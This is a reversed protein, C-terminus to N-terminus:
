SAPSPWKQTLVSISCPNIPAYLMASPSILKAWMTLPYLQNKKKFLNSEHMLFSLPFSKHIYLYFMLIVPWHNHLLFLVTPQSPDYTVKLSSYVSQRGSVADHRLCLTELSGRRSSAALIFPSAWVERVMWIRAPGVRKHLAEHISWWILMRLVTRMLPVSLRHCPCMKGAEGRYTLACDENEFLKDNCRTKNSMCSIRHWWHTKLINKVNFGASHPASHHWQLQRPQM